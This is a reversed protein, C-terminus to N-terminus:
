RAKLVSDLYALMEPSTWDQPGVIKRDFRGRRDIVYTEPFMTTGYTLTIQKSPDRYTPFSINHAKLFDDYAAADDDVSVGLVTGGLPAIHQQLQNLSEAEDVCPPCWTAWFNVLVVKGRLDSLRAPKGELTLAFDKAPRGRLSAEGQRYMPSVFGIILAAIFALVLATILKRKM